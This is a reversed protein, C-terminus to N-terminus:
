NAPITLVPPLPKEGTDALTMIILLFTFVGKSKLDRNEIWFWLDGYHVAAFPTDPRSAGSWIRMIPPLTDRGDEPQPPPPFALGERVQDEPVNVFSAMENLIQFGSRTQIAIEDDRDTGTGHTIRFESREPNLGLLRRLVEREAEIEPPIGKRPFAMM